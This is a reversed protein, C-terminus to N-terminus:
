LVDAVGLGAFEGAAGKGVVAEVEGLDFGQNTNQNQVEFKVKPLNSYKSSPCMAKTQGPEFNGTFMGNQARCADEVWGKSEAKDLSWGWVFCRAMAVEANISAIVALAVTASIKM